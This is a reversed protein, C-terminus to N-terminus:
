GHGKLREVRYTVARTHSDKYKRLVLGNPVSADLHPKLLKGISKESIFRDDGALLFDRVTQANEREYEKLDNVMKVLGLPTFGKPWKKMLIDLVDGLSASEEEDEEQTIFLDKFDLKQGTREAANEVASGVIRWWMKFRTKGPADHAAKLQPNGLLITYLARLIEGRHSQTWGVPDPHEFKRNEPDPRDVDIHLDRSALDGKPGINNGTFFHFTSAATIVAESFGLKRDAYLATTCSREIHPCAIQTGRAINDWLIYPLGAMFYSLLAKRRENEDSSWAAAAPRLGTIAMILMIILTTKGTGRRGATIRFCPRQDLLSREILTLALAIAIAKGPFDTAVDVLWGNCLLQMAAKVADPTCDERRPIFARLEDSIIFQIGRERDLGEPALLNGDALVIPATAIAVMTPLVGDDRRMFHKVFPTPLHVSRRTGDEDVTYYDIHEEILEAVEMESMKSLMWQEPPPLSTTAEGPEANAELDTFAHMNPVPLKRVRTMDGDIDRAPPRTAVVKGIVDNLVAMQPLWPEDLLPARIYARPDDRRQQYELRRHEAEQAAQQEQELKLADDIVGLTIGSLKKALQRLGALEVPDLDAGTALRTFTAVVDDKAAQEMAKRVSVADLKLKYITRGHAFSHIWPTGDARRMIKAVCRGYIVGELPDALTEGEFREPDALVDAVRCEALEPDDFPLVIDPRLVRECQREIVQRAAKEGMGTRAVLKKAQAEVFAARAKAMEPELRERERAKLERLRAQEVITLSQCTAKTDLARGAVVVPRRRKQQVPAILVPPGEFVPRSPAFVMRDVISRELLTGAASVVMWGFGHLWCRDHLARLFRESDAGDKVEVLGDSGPLAERTDARWLGASTSRRVLLATSKLKPLVMLLAGLFGDVRELEIRVAAPMGKSDYDLLAFAPGRYVIDANTRAIVDPRAVGKLLRRKTTVEVKDPLDARLTGLALAQNSTLGEILPGLEAVGALCIREATGHSMVGGAADKKLTGDPALSITKTFPGDSTLLALEIVSSPTAQKEALPDEKAHIARAHWDM